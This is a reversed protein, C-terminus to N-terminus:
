WSRSSGGGGSGGGGFGGFGGSFGGGFGGSPGGGRGGMGGLAWFLLMLRPYRICLIVVVIILLLNWLNGLMGRKQPAVRPVPPLPQAGELEVNYKEAIFQALAQTGQVIGAAMNGKRFEPIVYADQIRGTLADPLIGELGYGMEIRVKRDHPAILFLLGNDRGKQGIGWEKFLDTAVNEIPEENLSPLTVVAIEAGTQRRLGTLLQELSARTDAPLMEAFDNVHGVPKPYAAHLSASFLVAIAAALTSCRVWHRM